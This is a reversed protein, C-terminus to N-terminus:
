SYLLTMLLIRIEFLGKQSERIDLGYKEAVDKGLFRGGIFHRKGKYFEVSPKAATLSILYDPMFDHGVQGEPPPGDTVNWSSPTDIALVPKDTKELLAIVSDFPERV